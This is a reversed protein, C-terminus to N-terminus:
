NEESFIKIESDLPNFNELLIKFFEKDYELFYPLFNYVREQLIGNPFLKDKIDSIQKVVLENKRKEARLMKTEINALSKSAKKQEGLVSTELNKDINTAKELLSKFLKNLINFENEISLDVSSSNLIIKRIILDKHLFLSKKDLSLKVLKKSTKKDIIMAMDRLLLMPFNVGQSDFSSKLQLWYALEGAGGICALNPLIFEQYLPRFVVNPSFRHPFNKLEELLTKQSFFIDTNNVIYKNNKVSIRERINAKMYFLNIDRPKAQVKYKKAIYDIEKKINNKVFSNLLEEKIVSSFIKKYQSNNGDIVVLGFNSFLHHVFKIFSHSYNENESFFMEIKNLINNNKYNNFYEILESISSKINCNNMEGVAGTQGSEWEIKKNQFHSHNIEKFDHDESGLWFVPIFNFEPYKKKLVSCLKITSIVKYIFYLPGTFLCLQHATAITFSNKDLLKIINADVKLSKEIDIYQKQLEEVLVKRNINQKSKDLIIQKFSALEKKYKYLRDVKPHETIYDKILDSMIDLELVSIKEIKM